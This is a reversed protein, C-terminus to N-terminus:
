RCLARWDEPGEIATWCERLVRLEEEHNNHLDEALGMLTACLVQSSKVVERYKDLLPVSVSRMVALEIPTRPVGGPNVTTRHQWMASCKEALLHVVATKQHWCAVHLVSWGDPVTVDDLADPCADLIYNVLETSNSMVAAFLPTWEGDKTKHSRLDVKHQEVAYRVVDLHGNWCAIYFPTVGNKRPKWKVRDDDCDKLYKELLLKVTALNGAECAEYLPTIGTQETGQLVLAPVASEAEKSEGASHDIIAELSGPLGCRAARHAFTRTGDLKHSWETNAGRSILFRVFEPAGPDKSEVALTLPMCNAHAAGACRVNVNAHLDTVLARAMEWKAERVALTLLTDGRDSEDCVNVDHEPVADLLTRVVDVHGNMAAVHVPLRKDANVMKLSVTTDCADLLFRLCEMDGTEAAVHMINYGQKNRLVESLLVKQRLWTLVNLRKNRLAIFALTNGAKDTHNPDCAFEDSEILAQVVHVHGGEAAAMLATMGGRGYRHVDVQRRKDKQGKGFEVLARLIDLHGNRAAVYFPWLSDQGSGQRVDVGSHILVGVAGLRGLECAVRLPTHGERNRKGTSCCRHRLLTRMVDPKDLEVALMLVSRDKADKHTGQARFKDILEGVIEANGFRVAEHLVRRGFQDPENVKCKFQGVLTRIVGIRGHMAAEVVLRTGWRKLLPSKRKLNGRLYEVDGKAAAALLPQLEDPDPENTILPHRSKKKKRQQKKASAVTPPVADSKSEDADRRRQLMSRSMM